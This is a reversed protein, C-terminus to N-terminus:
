LNELVIGAQPAGVLLSSCFSTDICVFGLVTCLFSRVLLWLFPLNRVFLSVQVVPTHQLSTEGFLLHGGM